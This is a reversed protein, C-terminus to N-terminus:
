RRYGGHYHGGNGRHGGHYHGGGYNHYFYPAPRYFPRYVPAYVPRYGYRPGPNYYGMYCSSFGISLVLLLGTVLLGIRKKM